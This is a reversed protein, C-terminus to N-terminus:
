AISCYSMQWPGLVVTIRHCVTVTHVGGVLGLLMSVVQLVALQLSSLRLQLFRKMQRGSHYSVTVDINAALGSGIIVLAASLGLLRLRGLVTCIMLMTVLCVKDYCSLSLLRM